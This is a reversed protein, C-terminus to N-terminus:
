DKKKTIMKYMTFTICSVNYMNFISKMADSTKMDIRKYLITKKYSVLCFSEKTFLITHRKDSIQDTKMKRNHYEILWAFTSQILM